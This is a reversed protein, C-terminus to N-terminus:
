FCFSFFSVRGDGELVLREKSGFFNLNKILNLNMYKKLVNASVSRDPRNEQVWEAPPQPRQPPHNAYHANTEDIFRQLHHTRPNLSMKRVSFGIAPDPGYQILSASRMRPSVAPSPTFEGNAACKWHALRENFTMLPAPFIDRLLMEELPGGIDQEGCSTAGSSSSDERLECVYKVLRNLLWWFTGRCNGCLRGNEMHSYGTNKKNKKKKPKNRNNTTDVSNSESDSRSYIIRNKHIHFCGPM